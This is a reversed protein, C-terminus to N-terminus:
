APQMWSTRLGRPTATIISASCIHMAMRPMRLCPDVVSVDVKVPAKRSWGSSCTRKMVMSRAPVFSQGEGAGHLAPHGVQWKGGRRRVLALELFTLLKRRAKVSRSQHGGD